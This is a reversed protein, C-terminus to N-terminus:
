DSKRERLFYSYNLSSPYTSPVFSFFVFQPHKLVPHQHSYKSRPSFFYCSALSFQMIFLKM